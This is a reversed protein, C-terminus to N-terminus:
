PIEPPLHTSPSAIRRVCFLETSLGKEEEDDDDEDDEEDDDDDDIGENDDEERLVLRVLLRDPIEIILHEM